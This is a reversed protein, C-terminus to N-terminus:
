VLLARSAQKRELDSQSSRLRHMAQDDDAVARAPGLQLGSAWATNM